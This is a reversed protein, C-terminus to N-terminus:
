TLTEDQTISKWGDAGTSLNGDQIINQWVSVIESLFDSRAHSAAARSISPSHHALSTTVMAAPLSGCGWSDRAAMLMKWCVLARLKMSGRPKDMAVPMLYAQRRRGGLEGSSLATIAMCQKHCGPLGDVLLDIGKTHLEPAIMRWAENFTDEQKHSGPKKLEFSSLCQQASKCPYAGPAAGAGAAMLMLRCLLQMLKMSGRM